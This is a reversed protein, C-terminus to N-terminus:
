PQPLCAVSACYVCADLLDDSRKNAERDGMVFGNLQSWLHNMTLEKFQATKQYAHETMRVRGSNMYSEVAYVRLDKGKSMWASPLPETKGAYTEIVVTGAAADEVFCPGVRLTRKGMLEGCREWVMEFWPGIKGAGVQLLDWDLIWMIPKPRGPADPNGMETLAVYVV